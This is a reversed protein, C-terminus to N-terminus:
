TRESDTTFNVRKTYLYWPFITAQIELYYGNYLFRTVTLRVTNYPALDIISRIYCNKSFKIYLTRTKFIQLTYKYHLKLCFKLCAPYPRASWFDAHFQVPFIILGWFKVGTYKVNLLHLILFVSLKWEWLCNRRIQHDRLM